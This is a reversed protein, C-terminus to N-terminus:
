PPAPSARAPPQHHPEDCDEETTPYPTNQQETTGTNVSRWTGRRPPVRETAPGYTRGRQVATVDRGHCGPSEHTTPTTPQPPPHPRFPTRCTTVRRGPRWAPAQFREWQNFPGYSVFGGNALPTNSFNGGFGAKRPTSTYVEYVSDKPASGNTQLLVAPM